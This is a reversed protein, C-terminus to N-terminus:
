KQFVVAYIAFATTKMAVARSISKGRMACSGTVDCYGERDDEDRASM